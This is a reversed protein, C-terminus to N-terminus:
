INITVNICVEAQSEIKGMCKQVWLCKSVVIFRFDKADDKIVMSQQM